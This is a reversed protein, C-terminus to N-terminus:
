QRCLEQAVRGGPSLVALVENGPCSVNGRQQPTKDSAVYRPVLDRNKKRNCLSRLGASQSCVYGGPFRPWHWSAPPLADRVGVQQM